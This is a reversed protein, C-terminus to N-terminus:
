RKARKKSVCLCCENGFYHDKISEKSLEKYTFVRPRTVTYAQLLILLALNAPPPAFKCALNLHACQCCPQEGNCRVKRVRCGDRARIVRTSMTPTRAATQHQTTSISHPPPARASPPAAIATLANLPTDHHRRCPAHTEAISLRRANSSLYSILSRFSFPAIGQSASKTEEIIALVFRQSSLRVM